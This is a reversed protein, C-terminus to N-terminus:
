KLRTYHFRSCVKWDKADRQLMVPDEPESIDGDDVDEVQRVNEAAQIREDESFTRKYRKRRAHALFHHGVPEISRHVPASLSSISKFDKEATWGSPLVPLPLAIQATAAMTTNKHTLPAPTCNKQPTRNLASLKSTQACIKWAVPNSALLEVASNFDVYEEAAM